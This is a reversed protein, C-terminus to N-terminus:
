ITDLRERLEKKRAKIYELVEEYTNMDEVRDLEDLRAEYDARKAQDDTMRTGEKLTRRGGETRGRPNGNIPKGRLLYINAYKNGKTL